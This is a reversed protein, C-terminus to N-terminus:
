KETVLEEPEQSFIGEGDREDALAGIRQINRIEDWNLTLEMNEAYYQAKDLTMFWNSKKSTKSKPDCYICMWLARWTNSINYTKRIGKEEYILKILKLRELKDAIASVTQRTVQAERALKSFSINVPTESTWAHKLMRRLLWSDQPRLNMAKEYKDFVAPIPTFGNNGEDLIVEGIEIPPDWNNDTGGFRNILKPSAKSM